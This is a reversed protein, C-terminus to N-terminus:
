MKLNEGYTCVLSMSPLFGYQERIRLLQLRPFFRPQILSHSHMRATSAMCQRESRSLAQPQFLFKPTLRAPTFFHPFELVPLPKRYHWGLVKTVHCPLSNNGAPDTIKELRPQLGYITNFPLCGWALAWWRCEVSSHSTWIENLWTRPCYIHKMNTKEEGREESVTWLAPCGDLFSTQWSVFHTKTHLLVQGRTSKLFSM